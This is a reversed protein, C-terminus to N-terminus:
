SHQKNKRKLDEYRRKQTFVSPPLMEGAAVWRNIQEEGDSPIGGILRRITWHLNGRLLNRRWLRMEQNDKPLNLALLQKWNDYLHNRISM